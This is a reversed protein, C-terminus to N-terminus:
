SKRAIITIGAPEIVQREISLSANQCWQEVESISHRHANKPAYWDYNIHNMEDLTLDEHYFAKFVHWYFLRQLNIKGAPIDLLDISEEIEIDLNLEGLTKGLRTLPMLADWGQIPTMAQLKDRLYDDVFERIPGKQNYVYYMFYGKPKLLKALSMFTQETNDTHHMVGESFIIDVSAANVPLNAIDAQLFVANNLGREMFRQQCVDVASSIDVGLYNLKDCHSGWYELASLGAGCGADLLVPKNEFSNLIKNADDYREVLWQRMRNLSQPSEFTDRKNWKFGFTEKTQQQQMSVSRECRILRENEKIFSEDKALLPSLWSPFESSQAPNLETVSEVFM